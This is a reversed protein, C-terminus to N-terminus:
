PLCTYRGGQKKKTVSLVHLSPADLGVFEVGAVGGEYRDDVMLLIVQKTFAHSNSNTV